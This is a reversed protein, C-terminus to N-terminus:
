IPPLIEGTINKVAETGAVFLAKAVRDGAMRTIRDRLGLRELTKGVARLLTVHWASAAAPPLLQQYFVLCSVLQQAAKQIGDRGALRYVQIARRMAELCGTLPAALADDIGKKALLDEVQKLATLLEAMVDEDALEEDFQPGVQDAAATLREMLPYTVPRFTDRWPHVLGLVASDRIKRLDDFPELYRTKLGETKRCAQEAREVLEFFVPLAAAVEEPSADAGIGLVRPWAQMSPMDPKLGLGVHLARCLRGVPNSTPVDRILDEYAGM